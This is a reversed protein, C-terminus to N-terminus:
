SDSEAGGGRIIRWEEMWVHEFSRGWSKTAPRSWGRRRSRTHGHYSLRSAAISVGLVCADAVKHHGVLLSELEAPAVQFGKYKILEKLRDTIYLTGEKDQHGIDGTKSCGDGTMCNAPAALGGNWTMEKQTTDLMLIQSVLNRQTLM